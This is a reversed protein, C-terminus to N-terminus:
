FFNTNIGKVKLINYGAGVYHIAEAEGFTNPNNINGTAITPYPDSTVAIAIANVFL